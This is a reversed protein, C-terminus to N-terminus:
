SPIHTTYQGCIAGEGIILILSQSLGPLLCMSAQAISMFHRDQFMTQLILGHLHAHSFRLVDFHPHVTGLLHGPDELHGAGHYSQFGVHCVVPCLM